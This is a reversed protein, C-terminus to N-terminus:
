SPISSHGVEACGLRGGLACLITELFQLAQFDAFSMSQLSGSGLDVPDFSM